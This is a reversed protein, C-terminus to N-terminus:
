DEDIKDNGREMVKKRFENKNSTPKQNGDQGSRKEREKRFVEQENKMAYVPWFPTTTGRQRRGSMMASTFKMEEGHNSSTTQNRHRRKQVWFNTRSCLKNQGVVCFVMYIHSQLQIGEFNRVVDIEQLRPFRQGVRAVWWFFDVCRMGRHGKRRSVGNWIGRQSKRYLPLTAGSWCGERQVKMVNSIFTEHM